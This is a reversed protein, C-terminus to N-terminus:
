PECRKGSFPTSPENLTLGNLLLDFSATAGPTLSEEVHFGTNGADLKERRQAAIGEIERNTRISKPGGPTRRGTIPDPTIQAEEGHKRSTSIASGKNKWPGFQGLCHM